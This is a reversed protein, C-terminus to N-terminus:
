NFGEADVIGFSATMKCLQNPRDSGQERLQWTAQVYDM